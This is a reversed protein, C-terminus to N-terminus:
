VPPGKFHSEVGFLVLIIATNIDMGAGHKEANEILGAFDTEFSVDFGIRILEEGGDLWKAAIDDNADFAGEGPIPKGIESGILIDGEDEPVSEIHLGDMSAFGFVIADISM